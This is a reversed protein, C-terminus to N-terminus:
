LTRRADLAGLVRVEIAGLEVADIADEDNVHVLSGDADTEVVVMGPTASVLNAFAAQAAQSRTRSKVRVLAPRLTVDAALAARVTAITGRVVAAAQSLSLLVQQPASSFASPGILRLQAAVLVCAASAVAAFILGESTWRQTALLGLVFLGILMAAAHLM